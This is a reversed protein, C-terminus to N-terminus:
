TPDERAGMRRSKNAIYRGRTNRDTVNFAVVSRRLQIEKELRDRKLKKLALEQNM